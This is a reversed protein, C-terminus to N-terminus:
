WKIQIEGIETSKCDGKFKNKYNCKKPKTKGSMTKGCEKCVYFNM